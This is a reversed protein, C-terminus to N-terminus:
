PKGGPAAFGPEGPGPVAPANGFILAQPNDNLASAARNVQRVARGGDEVTRNLRPLTTGNLKQGSAALADAGESLKDLVGGSQNVRQSLQMFEGASKKVTEASGAVSDSTDRFSKLTVSAEKMVPPLSSAAQGIAGLTSMLLQPNEASLLRNIGRSTEELQALIAASQDTLQSMLGPRMPIRPPPGDGPRLLERSEGTDELQVFSLGTVGQFGLTAFTSRTIPTDDSVSIQLLVNGPTQPDFGISSVKGVAVGRFRVRAQPQLGTVADRTSLEYILQVGAERTLWIALAALLAATMLVFAGAALAHAKNEM